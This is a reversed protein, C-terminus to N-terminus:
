PRWLTMVRDVYVQNVFKGDQRKRPSGANYAAIVDPWHNGDACYRDKLFQLQRCGYEIGTKPDCLESLFAGKFGRDRATMGMIQMFGWSTALGARETEISVPGYVPIKAFKHNQYVEPEFRVSWPNWDSEVKSIAMILNIPLGYNPAIAEVLYGFNTM